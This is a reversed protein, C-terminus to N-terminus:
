KTKPLDKAPLPSRSHNTPQPPAVVTSAQNLQRELLNAQRHSEWAQWCGAAFLLVTAIALVLTFTYLHRSADASKQGADQLDKSAQTLAITLTGIRADIEKASEATVDTNVKLANILWKSSNELTTKVTDTSHDLADKLSNASKGITEATGRQGLVYSANEGNTITSTAVDERDKGDRGVQIAHLGAAVV